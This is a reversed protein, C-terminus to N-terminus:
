GLLLSALRLAAPTPEVQEGRGEHLLGWRKLDRVARTITDVERGDKPDGAVVSLLEATTLFDPHAEIVVEMVAREVLESNYKPPTSSEAGM